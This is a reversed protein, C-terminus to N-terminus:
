GNPNAAYTRALALADEATVVEGSVQAERIQDLLSGVMPGPALGLAQMLDSGNILTPPEVLRDYEEFYAALLTQAHEVAMLWRDQDYAMGFAGLYDALILMILDIGGAGLLRWFRHIALPTLDDLWLTPNMHHRVLLVVRDQEAKSLHLAAVREAAVAAGVRDHDRFRLHEQEDREPTVMGKGVDHLLAALMVISFHPRDDAGMQTFHDQLRARFRDLGVVIMGLNFQAATTDTRKPSITALIEGLHNVVALTHGWADYAHKADQQLGHLTILEPFILMLMGLHDAVRLATGTKPLALLKFLEDRVREISTDLLNPAHARIDELTEHEIRLGFQTSLRVGRLARIPDRAIADANCRRLLKALADLAGGTPDIIANLDGRLDVAMANITFDRDRLDSELSDGRFGAADISLRGDVTDILARGVDRDADLAFFAGGYHNAIRRALKIGGQAVAIDVDKIARGLLADRVAGGVVYIPDPNGSLLDQLDLLADSWALVYDAM